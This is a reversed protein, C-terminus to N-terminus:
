PVAVGQLVVAGNVPNLETAQSASTPTITDMVEPVTGPGLACIPETGGM